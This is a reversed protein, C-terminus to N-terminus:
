NKLYRYVANSKWRGMIKIQEVTYGAKLLDVARGARFSHTDFAVNILNLNELAKKLVKRVATATVPVNGRFVFFQEDLSHYDGRVALYDSTLEFPCFHGTKATSIKEIKIKQPRSEKGHTKSSRLLFLMKAKNRAVQVDCAKVPHDGKVLEGIRFLGYYLLVFIARYLILLYPQEGLIRGLEFLIMEMLPKKIPRRLCVRDNTMRCSRTITKLLVLNDDWEYNDDQLVCKIASIYSRVTSSQLGKDVLYAIFLITRDEWKKPM